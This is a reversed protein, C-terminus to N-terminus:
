MVEVADVREEEIESRDPLVYAGGPSLVVEGGSNSQGEAVSGDSEPSSPIVKEDGSHQEQAPPPPKPHRIAAASEPIAVSPPQPPVWARQGSSRESM